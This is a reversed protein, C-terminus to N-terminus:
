KSMAEIIKNVIRKKNESKFKDLTFDFVEKQYILLQKSNIQTLSRLTHILNDKKNMDILFKKNPILEPIGSCNNGLVLVGRAQAEMIVTPLPDIRSPVIVLDLKDYLSVITKESLNNLIHVRPNSIYKELEKKLKRNANKYAFYLEVNPIKLIRDIDNIIFDVGKRHILNGVFGIKQIKQIPQRIKFYDTDLGNYVVKTDFESWSKQTSISVTIIEDYYKFYKDIMYRYQMRKYITRMDHIHLISKFSKESIFKGCLMGEITNNIYLIDPNIDNIIHKLKKSVPFVYIPMIFKNIIKNFSINLGIVRDEGYMDILKKEISPNKFILIFYPNILQNNELYRNLVIEAGSYFKGSIIFCVKRM